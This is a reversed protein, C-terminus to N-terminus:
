ETLNKYREKCKCMQDWYQTLVGDMSWQNLEHSPDGKKVLEHEPNMYPSSLDLGEKGNVSSPFYGRYKNSNSPNWKHVTYRQKEEPSQAFFRRAEIIINDILSEDIGHGIMQFFGVTECARRIAQSVDFKSQETSPSVLPSINIVPISSM